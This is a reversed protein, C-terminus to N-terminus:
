LIHVKRSKVMACLVVTSYLLVDVDSVQISSRMTTDILNMASFGRECEATSVPIASVTNMLKKLERPIRKGGNEIYERIGQVSESSNLKFRECLYRISDDGYCIDVSDPWYDPYLPKM